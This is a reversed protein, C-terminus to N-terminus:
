TKCIVTHDMLFDSYNGSITSFVNTGQRKAEEEEEEESSSGCERAHRWASNKILNVKELTKASVQAGHGSAEARRQDAKWGKRKSM